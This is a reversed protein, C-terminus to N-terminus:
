IDLFESILILTLFYLKKMYIATYYSLISLLDASYFKKMNQQIILLAVSNFNRTNQQIILLFNYTIISFRFEEYKASYYTNNQVIIHTIKVESQLSSTLNVQTKLLLKEIGHADNEISSPGCPM